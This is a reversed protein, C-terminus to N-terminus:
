LASGHLGKSERRVSRRDHDRSEQQDLLQACRVWRQALGNWVARNERSPSYKAMAECEAAFKLFRDATTM